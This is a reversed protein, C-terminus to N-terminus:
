PRRASATKVFLEFAYSLNLTTSWHGNSNTNCGTFVVEGWNKFHSLVRLCRRCSVFMWQEENKEKEAGREGTSRGTSKLLHWEAFGETFFISHILHLILCWSQSLFMLCIGSWAFCARRCWNVQLWHSTQLQTNIHTNLFSSPFASSMPQMCATM